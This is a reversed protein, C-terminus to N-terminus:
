NSQPSMDNLIDAFLSDISAAKSPNPIASIDVADKAVSFAIGWTDLCQKLVDKKYTDDFGRTQREYLAKGALEKDKQANILATKSERQGDETAAQALTLQRQAEYLAKKADESEIQMQTLKAQVDTSLKKVWTDMVIQLTAKYLEAYATAYDEGRIHNQLYLSDMHKSLTEMLKDFAGDGVVKYDQTIRTNNTIKDINFELDLPEITTDINTNNDSM